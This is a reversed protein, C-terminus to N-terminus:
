GEEHDGEIAERIKKMFEAMSFPKQIFKFNQNMVGQHVISNDTYGSMFLAHLSPQIAALRDALERGGMLPMVMDTILLDVPNALKRVMTLAEEGNAASLVTYGSASLHRVILSRIDNDDEVVLVTETGGPFATSTSEMIFAQSEDENAPLYVKVVTGKGEESYFGISGNHQKIIGYCTSLGLGTGKGIPKTTFFPEFVHSIVDESMGTGTDTVALMVYKGPVTEPNVRVYEEDLVVNKTEFTLKGGNPMADRANVVLNTLVQEIQGPDVKVTLLSEDTITKMEINEGILRRLMKDMYLLTQNLNIVRPQVVQKRSFALLQRTLEAAREGSKKIEVFIDYHQESPEMLMIALEANANIVTLINNFDHAVGGALRGVTEMKQSQLLQYELKKRETIDRVFLVFLKEGRLCTVSVEVDIIKGSKHRHGIEFRDFERTALARQFVDFPEGEGIVAIDQIYMTLLEEREFGIIDCYAGNVEIFLGSEELLAFGDRTTELIKRNREESKRLAREAQKQDTINLIAFLARGNKTMEETFVVNFIIDIRRGDLTENVTEIKYRNKGTLFETIFRRMAERSEPLQHKGMSRFIEEKDKSGYMIMTERNVDVLRLSSGLMDIIEPHQDFYADIDKLPVKMLQDKIIRLMETLDYEWIAVPIADYIERFRKESARLADEVRKRETIDRGSRVLSTIEGETDALGKVAWGFWRWGNVTLGRIEFYCTHPPNHLTAFAETMIQIDEKTLLFFFSTGLLEAETKGRLICYSPSAYQIYGEFDSKVILDTQNEVILRYREESARLAEEAQKRGTIDQVTVVFGHSPDDSHLVKGTLIVRIADGHKKRMRTELSGLGKNLLQQYMKIGVDEYEETTFYLMRTSAGVLEQRSYEFTECLADNANWIMRDKTFCIGVPIAQFVSRLTAESERLATETRLRLTVDRFSWARGVVDDGIRQPGSYWAIVRGDLMEFDDAGEIDPQDYYSMVRGRFKEPTVIKATVYDLLNMDKMGSIENEAIDWMKLLKQNYVSIDGTISVVLIADETSELTARLISLTQERAEDARKRATIDLHTGCMRLPKGRDDRKIVCGKALVWVWEGSKHRLRHEVEYSESYGELHTNLTNMVGPLDDPHLLKEWSSVQPEIEDVTYGLMEAWRENVTLIDEAALWDWAGLEAGDLALRLREESEHIAQESRFRAIANGIPAILTEMIMPLLTPFEDLTFSAFTFGGIVSGQHLIPIVASLSVGEPLPPESSSADMDRVHLYVAEGRMMLLTYPSDATFSSVTEIFGSVAGEHVVLRISRDVPDLLYVGGEDMGSLSLATHLCLSLGENMDKISGLTLAMDRVSGMLSEMQRRETIDQNIGRYGQFVGKANYFPAGSMLFCVRGGSRTFTWCEVNTFPRRIRVAEEAGREFRPRIEPDIFELPSHGIMEEPSYGTIELVQDSCFTLIFRDNVEWFWDRRSSLVDEWLALKEQIEAERSRASELEKKLAANESRLKGRENENRELDM